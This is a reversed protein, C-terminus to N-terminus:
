ARGSPRGSHSLADTLLVEVEVVQAGGGRLIEVMIDHEFGTEEPSLIDDFLLRGLQHQTMREIENGPRRVIVRRLAEVENDVHVKRPSPTTDPPM